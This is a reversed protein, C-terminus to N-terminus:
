RGRKLSSRDFLRRKLDANFDVEDVFLITRSDEAYDHMTLRHPIWRGDVERIEEADAILEKRLEDDEEFFRTNLPVCRERDFRTTVHTYTSGRDFAADPDSPKSQIVFTERGEWQEDALRQINVDANTGYFHAFDEYSFDTGLMEGSLASVTILRDRREGPKYLVVEPEPLPDEEDSEQETLLVVTGSQRAPATLEVRAKARLEFKKWYLRAALNSVTGREDAVTLRVEQRMSHDPLNQECCARAEADEIRDCNAAQVHLPPGFLLMLFMIALPKVSDFM